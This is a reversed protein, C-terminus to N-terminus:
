MMEVTRGINGYDVINFRAAIRTVAQWAYRSSTYERTECFLVRYSKCGEYGTYVTIRFKIKKM